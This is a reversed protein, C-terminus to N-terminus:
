RLHLATGGIPVVTPVFLSGSVSRRSLDWRDSADSCFSSVFGLRERVFGLRDHAAILHTSRRLFLAAM